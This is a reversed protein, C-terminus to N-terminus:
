HRYGKKITEPPTPETGNIGSLWVASTSRLENLGTRTPIIQQLLSVYRHPESKAEDANEHEGFKNPYWLTLYVQKYKRAIWMMDENVRKWPQLVDGSLKGQADLDAYSFYVGYGTEKWTSGNCAASRKMIYTPKPYMSKLDHKLDRMSELSPEGTYELEHSNEVTIGFTVGEYFLDPAKFNGHIGAQSYFRLKVTEALNAQKRMILHDAEILEDSPKPLVFKNEQRLAIHQIAAMNTATLVPRVLRIDQMSAFGKATTVDAVSVQYPAITVHYALFVGLLAFLPATYRSEYLASLIDDWISCTNLKYLMEEEEIEKQYDYETMEVTTRNTPDVVDVGKAM